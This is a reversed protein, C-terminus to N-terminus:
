ASKLKNPYLDKQEILLQPSYLEEIALDTVLSDYVLRRNNSGNKHGHGNENYSHNNRRKWNFVNIEKRIM